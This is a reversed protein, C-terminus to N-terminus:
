EVCIINLTIYPANLSHNNACIRLTRKKLKQLIFGFMNM